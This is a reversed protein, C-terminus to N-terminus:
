MFVSKMYSFNCSSYVTDNSDYAFCTTGDACQTYVWNAHDCIAIKGDASCSIEGDSCTSKGNLQGASYQANLEIARQHAWSPSATASPNVASTATPAYSPVVTPALTTTSLGPGTSCTTTTLVTPHVTETTAYDSDSGQTPAPTPTGSTCTTTTLVTSHATETTVYDSDSGQASAPISTGSACTTTTLVTPHVTETTVFESDSGQASAPTSTGSACTTTTLVTPQVVETTISDPVCTGSACTTTTLTTSRVNHTTVTTAQASPSSCSTCITQLVTSQTIETTVASGASSVTTTYMIVPTSSSQQTGHGHAVSTSGSLASAPTSSFSVGSSLLSVSTSSKQAQSSSYGTAKSSAVLASSTTSSTIPASSVSLSSSSAAASVTSSASVQSNSSQAVSSGVSSLISKMQAVYSEGDVKNSFSQSADWLMIGGFNNSESITDVTSQIKSLDSIYGSGAASSSGPLGLYLKINPNPASAAFQTWTDWNFQADVNCYNNYFQIFAFDIDANNLLDGVSADPYFCQPAASLYYAKSASNFYERLKKALAAYGTPNQNEIDFDFGDVVADDFPRESGSGGGFTNWLTTAFDEAQSDSSFGYSGVSGGMSLMIKKGLSQCTKIDEGIQDCHLVGDSFTSSCASSFDLSVPDPFSYLFSLLVIDVDSSQCYSALSDQSGASAQGWYVAVNSKASADFGLVFALQMLATAIFFLM